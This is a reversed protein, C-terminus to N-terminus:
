PAAVAAIALEGAEWVICMGLTSAVSTLETLSHHRQRWLLEMELFSVAFSFLFWSLSTPFCTGAQATSKQKGQVKGADKAAM